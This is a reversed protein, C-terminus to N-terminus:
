PHAIARVQSLSAIGTSASLLTIHGARRVMAACTRLVQTKGTGAPGNIMVQLPKGTELASAVADIIAKQGPVKNHLPLWEDLWRGDEACTTAYLQATRARQLESTRDNTDPLGFNRLRKGDKALSANLAMQVARLKEDDSATPSIGHDPVMDRWFDRWTAQAIACFPMLSHFPIATPDSAM